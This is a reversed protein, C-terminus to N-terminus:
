MPNCNREVIEQRKKKFAQVWDDITVPREGGDVKIKEGTEDARGAAFLDHIQSDSLQMLEDALFKRGSESIVPHDLGELRATISATLAGICVKHGTRKYYEAEEQLDWVPQKSWLDFRMKAQESTSQDARGFTSGLDQVMLVPRMCEGKQKKKNEAGYVVDEKACGIRQQEPKQDGHQVLVALLALAGIQDPSAGGKDAKVKELEKWAWGEDESDQIIFGPYNPEMMAYEFDRDIRREAKEPKFPNKEPCGECHVRVAYVDDSYFGLAWFLRSAVVEAFIERNEQGYKIRVVTGSDLKCNFKPSAGTPAKKWEVYHCRIETGPAVAVPNKPGMLLNLSPIDMKRWVQGKELYHERSGGKADGFKVDSHACSAFLMLILCLVKM